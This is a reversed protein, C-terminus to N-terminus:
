GVKNISPFGGFNLTNNRMKCGTLCRSCKDKKPDGTPMDKEDAVPAGNYGCESSRYIWACTDAMMMRAPLYANDTETPLALTFTAVDQKLSSLQEIIYLSVLEQTPDAQPNGERFNVADLYHLYVQRRRVVAGVAENFDVAIGTILGLLNSVTLTPRNSPGNGNLEFGGAKIPY